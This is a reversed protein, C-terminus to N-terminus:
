LARRLLAHTLEAFRSLFLMEAERPALCAIRVRPAPRPWSVPTPTGPMLLDMETRCIDLDAEHVCQPIGYPLDFADAIVRENIKELETYNYLYPKLPRPVDTVYAEPADHLLGVLSHEPPVLRSVYVSHEAVSYFDRCHGNYRCQMSLSHAIDRINVESPRPDIPYYAVGSYTLMWNGKRPVDCHVLNTAGAADLLAQGRLMSGGNDTLIAINSM